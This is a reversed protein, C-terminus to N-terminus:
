FTCPKETPEKSNSNNCKTAPNSLIKTRIDVNINHLSLGLYWPQSSYSKDTWLTLLMKTIGLLVCHIYDITVGAIVDFGPLLMSWIM